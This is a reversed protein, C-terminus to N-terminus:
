RVKVTRAREANMKVAHGSTEVDGARGGVQQADHAGQQAIADATRDSAAAVNHREFAVLDARQQVENKKHEQLDRILRTFM